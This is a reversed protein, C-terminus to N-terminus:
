GRRGPAASPNRRWPPSRSSRDVLFQTLYPMRALQDTSQPNNDPGHFPHSWDDIGAPFPKVIEKAGVLAKGEPHLVRLLEAPPAQDQADRSMVWVEDALNDAMNVHTWPAQDIEVRRNQKRGEATENSTLPEYQARSLATLRGAEVGGDRMLFERVRDARAFGLTWNDAYPLDQPAQNDTHGVVSVPREGM